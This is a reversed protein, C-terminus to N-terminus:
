NGPEDMSTVRLRSDLPYGHPFGASEVVLDVGRKRDRGYYLSRLARGARRERHRPQAFVFMDGVAGAKPSPRLADVRFGVRPQDRFGGSVGSSASDNEAPILFDSALSFRTPEL